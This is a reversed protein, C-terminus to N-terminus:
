FLATEQLLKLCDWTRDTPQKIYTPALRMTTRSWDGDAVQYRTAGINKRAAGPPTGRNLKLIKINQADFSFGLFIITDSEDFLQIARQVTSDDGREEYMLRISNASTSYDRPLFDTSGVKDPDYDGLSGYVHHMEIKKLAAMADTQQLNFTYKLRNYFFHELTRDYNFTVFAVNNQKLFEALTGNTTGKYMEQFLYSLWDMDPEDSPPLREFSQAFELPRLVYAVVLKGIQAFEPEDKYTVLFSDISPHGTRALAQRFRVLYEDSSPFRQGTLSLYVDRFSTGFTGGQKIAKTPLANLIALTLNNGDPMGYPCHAGAGLIFLTKGAIM